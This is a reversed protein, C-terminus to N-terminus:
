SGTSKYHRISLHFLLACITFFVACAPLALWGYLMPEGWGCIAAAPYYTFLFMPMAMTFLNRLWGPLYQPPVKAVQYSGNTFMNLEVPTVTFISISANILFIGTYALVGGILALVLMWVDALSLTVQQAALTAIMLVLGTCVRVLRNLHFRLTMAQLFIPRPRLLVRDLTGDRVLSPLYDFGRSILETLGFSLLAMAYILLIQSGTWGGISGFRDLMLLADLPDTLCFVLSPLLGIVWGTYQLQSLMHIRIYRFYLGLHSQRLSDLM